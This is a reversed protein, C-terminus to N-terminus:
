ESPFAVSLLFIFCFNRKNPSPLPVVLVPLPSPQAALLGIPPWPLVGMVPWFCNFPLITFRIVASLIYFGQNHVTFLLPPLVFFVLFFLSTSLFLFYFSFCLPCAFSLFFVLSYSSFHSFLLHSLAHVLLSSGERGRM